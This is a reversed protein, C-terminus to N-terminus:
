KERLLFIIHLLSNPIFLALLLLYLNNSLYAVIVIIILSVIKILSSYKAIKDFRKKGHLYSNYITFNEFLIVFPATILFATALLINQNTYYYVALILSAIVGLISWKLKIKLDKFMSGEFGIHVARAFATNIGSMNSLLLISLISIVYKYQGYIEKPLLNAFAMALLFATAISIIQRFTLWFGGKALYVMDTKTYKESRRLLNHTKNKLKNIM